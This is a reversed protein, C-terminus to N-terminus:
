KMSQPIALYFTSGKGSGESDAWVRGGHREIMSKVIALGLGSSGEVKEGTRYFMDFVLDLEEREMGRGKDMVWLILEGNNQEGGITITSGDQSYRIANNIYNELALVLKSRDADIIEKELPSIIFERRGSSPNMSIREVTDNLLENMNFRTLNLSLKGNDIRNIDLSEKRIENIRNLDNLAQDLAQKQKGNISGLIGNGLLEIHGKAGTLPSGIDHAIVSLYEGRIKDSRQLRENVARLARENEMIRLLHNRRHRIYLFIVCILAMITGTFVLGSISYVKLPELSHYLVIKWNSETVTRVSTIYSSGKFDTEDGDQPKENFITSFPGDGFQRSELLRSEEVLDLPGLTGYRLDEDSSLFIIGEPSVFFGFETFKFMDELDDLSKKIVAVGVIVDKNYIPASNYYGRVGSTIGLAFYEGKGGVIASRYYPRFSYDKGIFSDPDNRNSSAITIGNLDLIYCVSINFKDKFSDLVNNGNECNIQTKNSALRVIVPLDAITDVAGNINSIESRFNSELISVEEDGIREVEEIGTEVAFSTGFHGFLLSISILMLFILYDLPKHISGPRIRIKRNKPADSKSM